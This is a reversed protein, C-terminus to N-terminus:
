DGDSAANRSLRQFYRALEVSKGFPGGVARGSNTATTRAGDVSGLVRHSRLLDGNDRNIASIATADSDGTPQNM